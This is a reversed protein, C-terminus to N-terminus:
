RNKGSSTDMLQAFLSFSLREGGNNLVVSTQSREMVGSLNLNRQPILMPSGSRHGIM